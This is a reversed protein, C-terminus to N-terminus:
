KVPARVARGPRAEEVLEGGDVVPVGGILVFPIGASPQTPETYTAQDIVTDPDFVVIDADAGVALRGKQRMQPVRAELRRAPDITMKRLADMLSLAGEERVYKGLVKAYSGATRPHGGGDSLFGDSAIMVMPHEIATRTMAETREHMILTGGQQRYKAFTARTLREGTAVWQYDQFVEDPYTQWDDLFAAQISTMGAEYPYAETTVDQGGARAAEIKALFEAIDPGGTSNAHVVHLSAGVNGAAEIAEVVGPVGERVHIHASADNAAAVRLMAEFEETTTAPTYAIGFGVAVAGEDLGAQLRRAMEAIEEEGATESIAGGSPLFEGPDEFLAMRVPIHGVSVGYNVYQGGEREAYWGAVDDTGVELEFASTVGDRVMARYSEENQGHEHLDIFGPAVVHGTADIVREGSLEGDSLAAVKGERIGVNLVEDRGSDPDIVRGHLIVLDYTEPPSSCNSM